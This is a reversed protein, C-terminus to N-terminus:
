VLQETSLLQAASGPRTPLLPSSWPFGSGGTETLLCTHSAQSPSDDEFVRPGDPGTGLVPAQHSFHTGSKVNFGLAWSRYKSLHNHCSSSVLLRGEIHSTNECLSSGCLCVRLSLWTLVSYSRQGFALASAEAPAM